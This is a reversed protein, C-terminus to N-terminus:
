KIGFLRSYLFSWEHEPACLQEPEHTIVADLGGTPTVSSAALRKQARNAFILSPTNLDCPLYNVYVVILFRVVM